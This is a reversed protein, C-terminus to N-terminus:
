NNFVRIISGSAEVFYRKLPFTNATGNEALGVVINFANDDGCTCTATTGEVELVSCTQLQHLPDSLEFASYNDGGAYYVVVGNIGYNNNLVIYNGPFQMNNYQPLNTNILGGTDFAVNPINSNEDDNDDDNKNCSFIVLSLLLLGFIYQLKM